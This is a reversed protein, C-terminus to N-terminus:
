LFNSYHNASNLSLRQLRFLVAALGCLPEFRFTPLDATAPLEQLAGVLFRHEDLHLQSVIERPV